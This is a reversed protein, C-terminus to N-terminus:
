VIMYGESESQASVTLQLSYVELDTQSKTAMHLFQMRLTSVHAITVCFEKLARQKWLGAV